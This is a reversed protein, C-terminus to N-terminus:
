SDVVKDFYYKMCIENFNCEQCVKSHPWEKFSPYISDAWLYKQVEIKPSDFKMYKIRDGDENEEEWQALLFNRKKNIYLDDPKKTLFHSVIYQRIDSLNAEDLYPYWEVLMNVIDDIKDMLQSKNYNCAESAILTAENKIFYITQYQSTYVIPEKMISSLFYKYRCISFISRENENVEISIQGKKGSNAVEYERPCKRAIGRKPERANILDLLFYLRQKEDNEHVVYSFQMGACSFFSAYFLYFLLYDSRTEVVNQMQAMYLNTEVSNKLISENLPWPIMDKGDRTMNKMSVLSFEYIKQTKECLFPAGDLQDFGRIIWDSSKKERKTALFFQLAKELEKATGWIEDNGNISLADLLLNILETEKDSVKASDLAMDSVIKMTKHFHNRYDVMKLGASDFIQKSIKDLENIFSIFSLVDNKSLSYYSLYRRFRDKSNTNVKEIQVLLMDTRKKIEDVSSIDSYFLRINKIIEGMKENNHGIHAVSCEMLEDFDIILESSDFNWMSYLGAVFRGVPYSMFPKDTFQEPFYNKLVENAKDPDVAYYQIDMKSLARDNVGNALILAKEYSKRVEGDTFDTLYKYEKILASCKGTVRNGSCVTAIRRGADVGKGLNIDSAFDFDCGTWKYARDWVKYLQPLNSAYNILFIIKVGISDLISITKLIEPTFRLIGHFVITSYDYNGMNEIIKLFENAKEKTYGDSDSEESIINKLYATADSVSSFKDKPKMYHMVEDILVNEMCSPLIDATVKGFICNYKEIYKDKLPEYVHKFFISQEEDVPEINTSNFDSLILMKFAKVIESKNQEFARKFNTSKSQEIDKIQDIAKSIDLYIQLDTASNDLEGFFLFHIFSDVSSIISFHKRGYKEELGQMLTNSACFHPYRRMLDSIVDTDDLKKPNPYTYIKAQNKWRYKANTLTSNETM